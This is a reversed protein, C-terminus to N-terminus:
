VQLPLYSGGMELSLIQSTLQISVSTNQIVTHRCGFFSTHNFRYLRIHVMEDLPQGGVLPPLILYDGTELTLIQATLQISVSTNHIVTHQCGLFSTRNSWYLRIRVM